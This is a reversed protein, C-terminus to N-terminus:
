IDPSMGDETGQAITLLSNPPFEGNVFKIKSHESSYKVVTTRPKTFTLLRRTKGVFIHASTEGGDMAPVKAFIQDTADAEIQRHLNLAPNPSKFQRQLHSSPPLTGIQTTYKFTNRVTDATINGLYKRMREWNQAEPRRIGQTLPAQAAQVEAETIHVDDCNDLLGQYALPCNREMVQRDFDIESTHQM